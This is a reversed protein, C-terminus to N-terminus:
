KSLVRFLARNAYAILSVPETDKTELLSTLDKQQFFLSNGYAPKINLDKDLIGWNEGAIGESNYKWPEDCAEFFFVQMGSKRTWQRIADFYQAAYEEGPEALTSIGDDNKSSIKQGKTPVGTESCIVQKGVCNAQLQEAVQIFNEVADENSVGSWYPYYNFFIFDCLSTVAPYATIEGLTDATTVPIGLPSVADKVYRLCEALEAPRLDRRLLTESGVVAAACLGKRCLDILADMEAKDATEDGSLWASGIVQFGMTKALSYAKGIDGSASYFRVMNTFPQIAKLIKKIQMETLQDGPRGINYFGVNLAISGSAVKFIENVKDAPLSAYGTYTSKGNVYGDGTIKTAKGEGRTILIYSLAASKSRYFDGGAEIDRPVVMMHILQANYDVGGTIFHASFSGDSQIDVYPYSSTPKEWYSGGPTIQLFVAIRYNQPDIATGDESVVMGKIQDIEGYGPVYTLYIVPKGSESSAASVTADLGSSLFCLVIALMISVLKKM